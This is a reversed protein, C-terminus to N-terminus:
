TTLLDTEPIVAQQGYAFHARGPALLAQGAFEVVGDGPDTLTLCYAGYHGPAGTWRLANPLSLM